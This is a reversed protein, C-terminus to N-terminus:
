LSTRSSFPVLTILAAVAGCLLRATPSKANSAPESPTVSTEAGTAAKKLRGNRVPTSINMGEALGGSAVIETAAVGRPPLPTSVILTGFQADAVSRTLTCNWSKWAVSGGTSSVADGGVVVAWGAVCGENVPQDGGM